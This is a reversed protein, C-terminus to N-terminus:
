LNVKGVLESVHSLGRQKIYDKMGDAVSQAACPNIFNATGVAVASAGALMFEIADVATVIGGMGIVPVKVARAVQWVMRVAIPKVAPGSLGGVVNGLVPRWKHIDISMGLLTNILSIADAGADEVSQAMAVIDTVNPSLKVIVPLDTNSKVQKVVASASDCNTGFAIGGEKVNPCSINLEVGAVDAVNLRAALEGYEEVTNGSINVIVPVDYEKLRPLIESLFEDVGPNELGISNLMGAPTEAIRRGQNGSRPLLTTGKVVVAGIKNLNVFDKYELGFGFTGSATMVPTKMKIGAITVGLMDSDGVSM